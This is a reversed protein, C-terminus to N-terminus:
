CRNRPASDGQSLWFVWSACRSMTWLGRVMVISWVKVIVVSGIVWWHICISILLPESHIGILVPVNNIERQHCGNTHHDSTKKAWPKVVDTWIGCPQWACGCWSLQGWNAAPFSFVTEFIAIALLLASSWGREDLNWYLISTLTIVQRTESQAAWQTSRHMVMPIAPRQQPEQENMLLVIIWCLWHVANYAMFWYMDSHMVADDRIMLLSGGFFVDMDHNVLPVLNKISLWWWNVMWSDWFNALM